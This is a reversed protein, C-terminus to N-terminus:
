GIDAAFTATVTEGDATAGHVEFTWGGAALDATALYHGASYKTTAVEQVTGDSSTAHVEVEPVALETGDAAFYTLHLQTPGGDTAALLAQLARGEGLEVRISGAADMHPVAADGADEHAHETPAVAIAATTAVALILVVIAVVIAGTRGRLSTLWRPRGLVVACGIAILVELVTSLVDISGAAEAVGPEPGVPLGATRSVVWVVAVLANGALGAILLWRVPRMAIGVAWLAQFWAVASFFIGFAVYERFHEGMVAFHIGAAALSM